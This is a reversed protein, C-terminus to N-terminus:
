LVEKESNKTLGMASKLKEKQIQNESLVYTGLWKTKKQLSNSSDTNRDDNIAANSIIPTAETIEIIHENHTRM